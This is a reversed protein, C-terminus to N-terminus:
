VPAATSQGPKRARIFYFGSEDIFKEIAFGTTEIMSRMEAEDCLRDHMVAFCTKHRRNIEEASGFHSIVLAGGGRLLRALSALVEQKRDFHPFCSFCFIVDCSEGDLPAEEADAVIFRINEDKHLKRNEEIMKEAYDLEYLMGSRTVRELIMPALIGSGCGVDLVTDGPKLPVLSFLRDFKKENLFRGSEPDRCYMDIWSGAHDNFFKKRDRYLSKKSLDM